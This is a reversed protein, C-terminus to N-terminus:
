AQPKYFSLSSIPLVARLLSYLLRQQAVTHYSSRKSVGTSLVTHLIHLYLGHQQQAGKARVHKWLKTKALHLHDANLEGLLGGLTWFWQLLVLQISGPHKIFGVGLCMVWCLFKMLLEDLDKLSSKKDGSNM